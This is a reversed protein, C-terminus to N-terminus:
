HQLGKFLIARSLARNLHWEDYQIDLSRGGSEIRVRRPLFCESDGVRAHDSLDRRWRRQGGADIREEAVIWGSLIDVWVRRQGGDAERVVAVARDARPYDVHVLDGARISDVLGLLASRPDHGMLDLDLLDVLGRRAEVRSLRGEALSWLTDAELVATLVHRFLPGRVDIRLLDPPLYQFSASASQTAQEDAITVRAAATLTKIEGLSTTAGQLLTMVDTAPQWGPRRVPKPPPACAELCFLILM